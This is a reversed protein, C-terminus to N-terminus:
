RASTRALVGALLEHDVVQGESIDATKRDGNGLSRLVGKVPDIGGANFILFSIKGRAVHIAAVHRGDSAFHPKGYELREEVDPVTRHVLQRLKECVEVQWPLGRNIYTTVDDNM